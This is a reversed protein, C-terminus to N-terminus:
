ESKGGDPADPDACVGDICRLEDRCDKSRTCPANLGYEPHDVDDCGLSGLLGLMVVIMAFM